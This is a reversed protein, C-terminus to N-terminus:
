FFTVLDFVVDDLPRLPWLRVLNDSNRVRCNLKPQGERSRHGVGRGAQAANPM